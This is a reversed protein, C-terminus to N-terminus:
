TVARWQWLPVRNASAHSYAHNGLDYGADLWETLIAARGDRQGQVNLQRENIFITAPVNEAILAKMLGRAIRQFNDLDKLENVAPGDDITIAVSREQAAAASIAAMAVLLAQLLPRM